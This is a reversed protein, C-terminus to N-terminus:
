KKDNDFLLTRTHPRLYEAFFQKFDESQFSLVYRDDQPGLRFGDRMSSTPKIDLGNQMTKRSQGAFYDLLEQGYGEALDLSLGDEEPSWKQVLQDILKKIFDADQFAEEVPQGIAQMTVLGAIRQQLADVSQQVSLKLEAEVNQRHDAAEKEAEKKLSAAKKEAEALIRDAKERAKALLEDAEQQAKEVGEARIRELLQQLKQEM